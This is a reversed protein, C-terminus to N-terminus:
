ISQIQVWMFLASFLTVSIGLCIDIVERFLLAPGCNNYSHVSLCVLWLECMIFWTLLNIHICSEHCKQSVGLTFQLALKYVMFCLCM